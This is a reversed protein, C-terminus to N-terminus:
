NELSNVSPRKRFIIALFTVSLFAPLIIWSPFEPISDINQEVIITYSNVTGTLVTLHFSGNHNCINLIGTTEERGFHQIQEFWQGGTAPYVYVLFATRESGNGPEIEWRIRWDVHGVTFTPINSIGGVGTFRKVKVWHESSAFVTNVNCLLILVLLVLFFAGFLKIFTM